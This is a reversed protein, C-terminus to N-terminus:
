ANDEGKFPHDTWSDVIIYIGVALMAAMILAAIIIALM